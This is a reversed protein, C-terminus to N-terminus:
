TSRIRRRPKKRHVEMIRRDLASLETSGLSPSTIEDQSIKEEHGVLGGQPGPAAGTPEENKKKQPGLNGVSDQGLLRRVGWRFHPRKQTEMVFIHAAAACCSETVETLREALIAGRWAAGGARENTRESAARM